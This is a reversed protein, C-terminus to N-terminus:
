QTRKLNKLAGRSHLLAPKIVDAPTFYEHAGIRLRMASWMCSALGMGCEEMLGSQSM